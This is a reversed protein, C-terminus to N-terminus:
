KGDGEAPAPLSCIAFYIAFLIFYIADQKNGGAFQLVAVIANFAGFYPLLKRRVIM